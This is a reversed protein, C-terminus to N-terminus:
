TRENLENRQRWRPPWLHRACRTPSKPPKTTEHCKQQIGGSGPAKTAIQADAGAGSLKFSLKGGAKGGNVHSPM